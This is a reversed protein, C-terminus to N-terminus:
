TDSGEKTDVTKTGELQTWTSIPRSQLAVGTKKPEHRDTTDKEM